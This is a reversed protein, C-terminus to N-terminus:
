GQYTEEHTAKLKAILVHAYIQSTALQSYGLMEEVCRLDAREAGPGGPPRWQHGAQM